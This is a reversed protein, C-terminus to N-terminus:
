DDRWALGEHDIRANMLHRASAIPQSPRVVEREDAMVVVLTSAEL